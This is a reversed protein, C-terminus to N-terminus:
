ARYGCAPVSLLSRTVKRLSCLLPKNAQTQIWHAAKEQKTYNELWKVQLISFDYKLKELNFFQGKKSRDSLFTFTIESAAKNHFISYSVWTEWILDRLSYTWYCNLLWSYSLVSNELHFSSRNKGGEIFPVKCLFCPNMLYLSFM